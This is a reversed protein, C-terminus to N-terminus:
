NLEMSGVAGLVAVSFGAAYDEPGLTFVTEGGRILNVDGSREYSVRDCLWDTQEGGESIAQVLLSV